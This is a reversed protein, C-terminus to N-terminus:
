TYGTSSYLYSSSSSVQYSIDPGSYEPHSLVYDKGIGLCNTFPAINPMMFGVTQDYSRSNFMSSSGLVFYISESYSILRTPTISTASTQLFITKFAM